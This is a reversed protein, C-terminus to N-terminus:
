ESSHREVDRNAVAIVVKAIVSEHKALRSPSKCRRKVDIRIDVLRFMDQINVIDVISRAQLSGETRGSKIPQVVLLGPLNHILYDHNDIM